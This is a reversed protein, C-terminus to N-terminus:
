FDLGDAREKKTRHRVYNEGDDGETRVHAFTRHHQEPRYVNPFLSMAMIHERLSKVPAVTGAKLKPEKDLFVDKIKNAETIYEDQERVDTLKIPITPTKHKKMGFTRGESPQSM